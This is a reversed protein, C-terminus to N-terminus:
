TTLRHLLTIAHVPPSRSYVHIGVAGRAVVAFRQKAHCILPAAHKRSGRAGVRGRHVYINGRRERPTFPNNTLVRAHAHSTSGIHPPTTTPSLLPPGDHRKIFRFRPRDAPPRVSPRVFSCPSVAARSSHYNWYQIRVLDEEEAADAAITGSTTAFTM